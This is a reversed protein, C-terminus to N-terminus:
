HKPKIENLFKAFSEDLVDGVIMSKLNKGHEKMWLKVRATTSVPHYGMREMVVRLWSYCDPSLIKEKVLDFYSDVMTDWDELCGNAMHATQGPADYLCGQCRMKAAAHIECSLFHVISKGIVDEPRMKEVEKTLDYLVVDKETIPKMEEAENYCMAQSYYMYPSKVVTKGYRNVWKWHYLTQMPRRPEAVKPKKPAMPTSTPPSPRKKTLTPTKDVIKARPLITRLGEAFNEQDVDVVRVEIEQSDDGDEDDGDDDTDPVSSRPSDPTKVDMKEAGSQGSKQRKLNGKQKVGTDAEAKEHIPQPIPSKNGKFISQWMSELVNEVNQHFVQYADADMNLGMGKIRNGEPDITVFGVYMKDQFSMTKVYYPGEALKEEIEHGYALAESILKHKNKLDMAAIGDLRYSWQYGGPHERIFILAPTHQVAKVLTKFNLRLPVEAKGAFKKNDIEQLAQNISHVKEQLKKWPQYPLQVQCHFENEGLYREVKLAVTNPDPNCIQAGAGNGLPFYTQEEEEPKKWYIQIADAFSILNNFSTKSLQVAQRAGLKIDRSLRLYATGDARSSLVHAACNEGLYFFHPDTMKAKLSPLAPIDDFDMEGM